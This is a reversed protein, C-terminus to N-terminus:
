LSYNFVYKEMIFLLYFYYIFKGKGVVKKQTVNMNINRKDIDTGQPTGATSASDNSNIKKKKFPQKTNESENTIEAYDDVDSEKPEEEDNCRM